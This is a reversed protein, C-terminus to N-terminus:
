GKSDLSKIRWFEMLLFAFLQSLECLFDRSSSHHKKLMLTFFNLTPSNNVWSRSINIWSKADKLSKTTSISLLINLNPSMTLSNTKWSKGTNVLPEKNKMNKSQLKKLWKWEKDKWKKWSKDPRQMMSNMLNMTNLKNGKEPKSKESSNKSCSLRIESQKKWLRSYPSHTCYQQPNQWPTLKVNQFNNNSNLNFKHSHYHHFFLKQYFMICYFILCM